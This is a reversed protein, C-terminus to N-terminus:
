STAIDELNKEYDSKKYFLSTKFRHGRKHNKGNVANTLHPASFGYKEACTTISEYEIVTGDNKIEVIPISLKKSHEIRKKGLWVKKRTGYEYQKKMSDVKREHLTGFTNNEHPTMWQLNWVENATKDELGNPLTKTHGVYPKNEPNPIFAEAVLRHVKKTCRKRKSDCLSVILYGDSDFSKKLTKGNYGKIIYYEGKSKQKIARDLSKVNGYNSVQYLGEYGEIDKWIETTNEMIM